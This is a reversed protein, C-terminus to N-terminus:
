LPMKPTTKPKYALGCAQLAFNEKSGEDPFGNMYSVVPIHFIANPNMANAAKDSNTIKLAPPLM